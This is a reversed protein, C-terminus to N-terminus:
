SNQRQFPNELEKEETESTEAQLMGSSVVVMAPRIVKDFLTYGVQAQHAIVGEPYNPDPMQSVAEHFIPDFPKGIAEIRKVSAGELFGSLQKQIVSFGSFLAAPDSQDTLSAMARDLNDLVPLLSLISQEAGYKILSEKEDRTRKRFNEFDAALRTFQDQLTQYSEKWNEEQSQNSTALPAELEPEVPTLLPDQNEIESSLTPNDMQNDM